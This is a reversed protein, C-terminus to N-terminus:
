KNNESNLELHLQTSGNAVINFSIARNLDHHFESM